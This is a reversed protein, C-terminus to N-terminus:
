SRAAMQRVAPWALLLSGGRALYYGVFAAWVGVNGFKEALTFDLSLYILVSVIASNRMAASQTAGVFIGDLQWALAGFIPVLACWPLFDLAVTLAAPDRILSHLVWPGAFLTVAACLLAAAFAFESTLRVARYLDPLSKRGIARGTEAEATYAFADLVFAWVSIFQLLIQNGALVADGQKAGSNVFWTFGLVMCMSRVFLDRNVLLLRIFDQVHFINKLAFAHPSIGQKRVMYWLLLGLGFACSIWEALATGMAVGVPGLGWHMVFLVDLVANCLALSIQVLMALRSLGAGIMWGTIAFLMLAAPAGLFRYHVYDRGIQEAPGSAELISFAFHEIPNRALLVLLGVLLGLGLSRALVRQSESIKNAGLAQAVLGTTSQRLMYMGWYFVLFVASGLAVGSLDTADGMLGIIATDVVGVMPVLGNAFM